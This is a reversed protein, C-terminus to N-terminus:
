RFYTKIGISFTRPMGPRYGAPRMAALYVKDTINTISGCVSLFTNIHWAASFDFTTHAPILESEPISGQGATARMDSVYKANANLSYKEHELSLQTFLQYNALYPLADGKEVTGWDEFDSDFSSDFYANTFTYNVTLPLAYNNSTNYLLNLSVLLEAGYATAAGGNYLESSGSGGSAAMDAGLLNKYDNYFLVAQANMATKYYRAGIEYNISEEPMAGDSPGAPAFGKHVGAFINAATGFKYDMGVGPIFVDFNNQSETLSTGTRDPDTKGYNMESVIIDEFRLGPSVSIKKYKLKYQVYAAIAKAKVIYNSETGPVGAVTQMMTGNSMAYKDSWQFRDMMDAHLRIGANLSHYIAGKEAAYNFISEVGQGYYERNNAKVELANYNTSSVGTLISYANNTKEPNDVIAAISYSTGTSDMVKDLKYWNRNFNNRYATTTLSTSKNFQAVHRVSFQTQETQMKDKQSAAYRRYPTESFDEATLGLYTENSLEKTYGTKFTLSQYVSANTGTNLRLKVLYDEKNFGTNGNNDLQKFGDSGYQFTEAVFGIQDFSTGVSAHISSSNYSGYNMMLKGSLQEPIQTSILNLAGGTTYPGYKIQSSGKLVEVSQMRGITPFYYAAPSAYPAPAMLIGDEMVTIKSSRDVGTGRFGINPRLGFGDEEQINVGPVSRLTRNVDSYNFKQIQKPSIYYASGPIERIGENGGTMSSSNIVVEPLDTVLETMKINLELNTGSPVHVIQRYTQYGISSFILTQEGPQVEIKFKGKPNSYTGNENSAQMISVNSLATGNAGTVTGTITNQTYVYTILCCFNIFVTIKRM